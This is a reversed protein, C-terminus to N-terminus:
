RCTVGRGNTRCGQGPGAFSAQGCQGTEATPPDLVLLGTLPLSAEVAYSGRKGSVAVRVVGPRTRSLDRISVGAIGAPPSPSRDVYKWSAGGPLV